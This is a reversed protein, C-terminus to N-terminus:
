LEINIYFTYLSIFRYRRNLTMMIKLSQLNLVEAKNDAFYLRNFEKKADGDIFTFFADNNNNRLSKIKSYLRKIDRNLESNTM